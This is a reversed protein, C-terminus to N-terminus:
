GGSQARKHKGALSGLGHVREVRGQYVNRPRRSGQAHRPQTVVELVIEARESSTEM